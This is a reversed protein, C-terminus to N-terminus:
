SRKFTSRIEIAGGLLEQAKSGDPEHEIFEFKPSEEKDWMAKIKDIEIDVEKLTKQVKWLVWDPKCYALIASVIKNNKFLKYDDRLILLAEYIYANWINFKTDSM